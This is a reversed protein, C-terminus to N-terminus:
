IASVLGSLYVRFATMGRSHQEFLAGNSGGPRYSNHVDHCGGVVAMDGLM